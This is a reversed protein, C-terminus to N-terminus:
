VARGSHDANRIHKNWIQAGISAIMGSKGKKKRFNSDFSLPKKEM